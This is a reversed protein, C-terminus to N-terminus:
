ERSQANKGGVIDLMLAPEWRRRLAFLTATAMSFLVLSSTQEPVPHPEPPIDPDVPVPTSCDVGFDVVLSVLGLPDLTGDALYKHM